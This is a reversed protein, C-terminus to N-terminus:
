SETHTQSTITVRQRRRRSGEMLAENLKADIVGTFGALKGGLWSLGLDDRLQESNYLSRWRSEDKLAYGAIVKAGLLLRGRNEAITTM